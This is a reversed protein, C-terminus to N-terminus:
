EQSTNLGKLKKKKKRMQSSENLYDALSSLGVAARREDVHEQDAIPYDWQTGYVQPINDGLCIRDTLYAFHKPQADKRNVAEELLHHCRKQFPRDHDAHLVLLWAAEAGMQGVRKEGPWGYRAIIQKMTQTNSHDIHEDWPKGNLFAQRAHQDNKAMWLLRFCLLKDPALLSGFIVQGVPLSVVRNLVSALQNM